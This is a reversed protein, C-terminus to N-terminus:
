SDERPLSIRVPDTGPGGVLKVGQEDVVIKYISPPPVEYDVNGARNLAALVSPALTKVADIAAKPLTNAGSVGKGSTLVGGDFDLTTEVKSFFHRPTASMKKNPDPLMLIESVLGGKADAHVLLYASCRYYRIGNATRDEADSLVPRHRVSACGCLATVLVLGSMWRLGRGGFGGWVSVAECVWM